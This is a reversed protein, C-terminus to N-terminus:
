DRAISVLLKFASVGAIVLAVVCSTLRVPLRLDNGWLALSLLVLFGFALNVIEWAERKRRRKLYNESRRLRKDREERRRLLDSMLIAFPM